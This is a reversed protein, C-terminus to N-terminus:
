QAPKTFFDAIKKHLSSLFSKKKISQLDTTLQAHGQGDIVIFFLDPRQKFIKSKQVMFNMLNKATMIFKPSKPLYLNDTKTLDYISFIEIHGNNKHIFLQSTALCTTSSKKCFNILKKTSIQADRTEQMLLLYLLYFDYNMPQSAIYNDTISSKTIVISQINKM